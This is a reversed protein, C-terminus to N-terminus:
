RVVNRRRVGFVDFVANYLSQTESKEHAARQDNSAAASLSQNWSRCMLGRQRFQAARSLSPKGAAPPPGWLGVAAGPATVQGVAFARSPIM